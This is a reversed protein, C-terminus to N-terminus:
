RTRQYIHILDKSPIINFLFAPIQDHLEVIHDHFAQMIQMEPLFLLSTLHIDHMQQFDHYLDHFRRRIFYFFFIQLNKANKEIKEIKEMKEMKEM